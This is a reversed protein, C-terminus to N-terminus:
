MRGSLATQQLMTNISNVFALDQKEMSMDQQVQAQATQVGSDAGQTATQQHTQASRLLAQAAIMDDPPTKSKMALSAIHSQLQAITVDTMTHSLQSAAINSTHGGRILTSFCQKVQSATTPNGIATIIVNYANIQPVLQAMHGNDSAIQAADAGYDGPNAREDRYCCSADNSYYNYSAVLANRKVSLSRRENKEMLRLKGISMWSRYSQPRSVYQAKSSLQTTWASYGREENQIAALATGGNAQAQGARANAAGCAAQVLALSWNSHKEVAQMQNDM